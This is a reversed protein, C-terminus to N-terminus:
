RLLTIMMLLNKKKNKYLYPLILNMQLYSKGEIHIM